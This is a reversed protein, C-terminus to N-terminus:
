LCYTSASNSYSYYNTRCYTSHKVPQPAPQPKAPEPSALFIVTIDTIDSGIYEQDKETVATEITFDVCQTSLGVRTYKPDVLSQYHASSNKFETWSQEPNINNSGLNEAIAANIGQDRVFTAWDANEPMEHSFYKRAIMDDSRNKAAIALGQNVVLAPAGLKIREANIFELLTNANVTCIPETNVYEVKNKNEERLSFIAMVSIISAVVIVMTVWIRVTRNM